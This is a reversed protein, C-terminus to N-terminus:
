LDSSLVEFNDYCSSHRTKDRGFCSSVEKLNVNRKKSFSYWGFLTESTLLFRWSIELFRIIDYLLFFSFEFSPNLCVQLLNKTRFLNFFFFFSYFKDSVIFARFIAFFLLQIM